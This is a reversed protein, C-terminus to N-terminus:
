FLDRPIDHEMSPQDPREFQIDSLSGFVSFYNEPWITDIAANLRKKAWQSVSSKELKAARKVKTLSKDDLYITIQGM